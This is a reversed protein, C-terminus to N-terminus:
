QRGTMYQLMRRLTYRLGRARLCCIGRRFNRPFWTLGRLFIFQRDSVSNIIIQRMLLNDLEDPIHVKAKEENSLALYLQCTYTANQDYARFIAAREEPTNSERFAYSLIKRTCVFYSELNQAYADETHHLEEM